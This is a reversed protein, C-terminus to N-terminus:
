YSVLEVSSLLVGSAVRYNGLMKHFGYELPWEITQWCKISGSPENGCECTSQVLPLIDRKESLFLIRKWGSPFSGQADLRCGVATSV